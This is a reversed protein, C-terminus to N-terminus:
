RQKTHRHHHVNFFIDFFALFLFLAAMPMIGPSTVSFSWLSPSPVSSATAVIREFIM